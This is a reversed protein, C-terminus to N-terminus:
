DHMSDGSIEDFSDFSLQFGHPRTLFINEFSKDDSNNGREFVM